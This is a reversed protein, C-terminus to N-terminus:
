LEYLMSVIDGAHRETENIGLIGPSIVVAELVCHDTTAFCEDLSTQVFVPVWLAM